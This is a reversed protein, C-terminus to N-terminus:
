SQRSGPATEKSKSTLKISSRWSRQGSRTYALLDIVAEEIEAAKQKAVGAIDQLGLWPTVTM